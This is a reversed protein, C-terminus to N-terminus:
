PPSPTTAALLARPGRPTRENFTLSAALRGAVGERPLARTLARRSSSCHGFSLGRM